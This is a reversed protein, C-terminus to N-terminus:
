PYPYITSYFAVWDDLQSAPVSAGGQLFTEKEGQKFSFLGVHGDAYSLTMTTGGHRISPSNQYSNPDPNSAGGAPNHNGMAFFGDDVTTVSEDIFVSADSPGPSRIATSKLVIKQKPDISSDVLMDHDTTNGFRPTISCTRVLLSGDLGSNAANPNQTNVTPGRASPCKYIGFIKNYSFLLGSSLANLNTAGAANNMNGTTGNIWSQPDGPINRVLVDGNEDAYMQWCIQLQKMNSLCQSQQAKLKAKSLAPLLMAALIAIIAIVVLLEILTFGPGRAQPGAKDASRNTQLTNM